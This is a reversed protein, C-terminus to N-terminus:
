YDLNPNRCVCSSYELKMGDVVNRDGKKLCIAKKDNGTCTYGFKICDQGTNCVLEGSKLKNSIEQNTPPKNINNNITPQSAAGCGSVFLLVLLLIIKKM